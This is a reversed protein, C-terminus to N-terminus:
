ASPGPVWEQVIRVSSERVVTATVRWRGDHSCYSDGNDYSEFDLWGYREGTRERIRRYAGDYHRTRFRETWVAM